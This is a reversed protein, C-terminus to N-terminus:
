VEMRSSQPRDETESAFPILQLLLLHEQLQGHLRGAFSDTYPETGEWTAPDPAALVGFVGAAASIFM